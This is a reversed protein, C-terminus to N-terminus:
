CCVKFGVILVDDTQNKKGKWEVFKTELAIKQETMSLHSISVLLERFPRYYFKENSPGGFQDPFGDSFLYCCDDAELAISHNTFQYSEDTFLGISKKDAKIEILQGKRIIYLPNHAGAYELKSFQPENAKKNENISLQILAIDMGDTMQEQHKNEKLSQAVQQSLLNLVKAPQHVNQKKVINEILNYAMLSMFAGPVGHGTCDIAALMLKSEKNFYSLHNTEQLNAFWYFDGSVIDKPQLFIFSEPMSATINQIPTFIAEQIRKAYNISDTIKENKEDLLKNAKQKLNYERFIFFALISILVFGIIFSNRLWVQKESEAQQKSLEAEKKILEKDKKESEYKTNMETIQESVQENFLTDKLDAYLSQFEFAKKYDGKQHHVESLASYMEKMGDKSDIEKLLALGKNLYLLAEDLRNQYLYCTGINGYSVGIGRKIGIKENMGASKYFFELAKEYKKQNYYVGGINLYSDAMGKKDGLEERIVLGKLLNKVAERQEHKELYVLGINNYTMGQGVKDGVKIRVELAKEYNELAKDYMGQRLYLIGINNYSGATGSKDGIEERIKLAKLHNELCKEYNGLNLYVLGINNYSNALGQIDGCEQRIQAAKLHNEIAKENEGLYWLVGGKSSLANGMGMSYNLKQALDLSKQAYNLAETFDGTGQCHRSLSNLTNVKNTDEIATKLTAILSDKLQNSASIHHTFFCIYIVGFVATKIWFPSFFYKKVSKKSTKLMKLYFKSNKNV